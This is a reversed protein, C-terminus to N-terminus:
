ATFILSPTKPLIKPLAPVLHKKAQHQYDAPLFIGSTPPMAIFNSM